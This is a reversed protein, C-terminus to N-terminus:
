FAHGIGIRLGETGIVQLDANLFVPGLDVGGGFHLSFFESRKMEEFGPAATEIHSYPIAELGSYVRWHPPAWAATVGALVEQSRLAYRTGGALLEENLGHLQVHGDLAFDGSRWVAGRVGLALMYGSEGSLPLSDLALSHGFDTSVAGLSAFFSEYMWSLSVIGRSVSFQQKPVEYSVQSITNDLSVAVDESPVPSVLLTAASAAGPVVMSLFLVLAVVNGM